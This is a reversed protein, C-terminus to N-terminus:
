IYYIYVISIYESYKIKTNLLRISVTLHTREMYKSLLSIVM